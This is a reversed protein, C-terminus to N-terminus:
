RAEEPRATFAFAPWEGFAVREDERARRFMPAPGFIDLSSFCFEIEAVADAGLLIELPIGGGWSVYVLDRPRRAALAHLASLPLRTLLAGGAGVRNGDAVRAVLEPLVVQPVQRRPVGPPQTVVSNDM